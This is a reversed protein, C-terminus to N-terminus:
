PKDNKGKPKPEPSRPLEYKEGLAIAALDTATQRSSRDDNNSLVVVFLGVEPYSSVESVFGPIGGGHERATRGFRKRVVIGCAYGDKAPTFMVKTAEAGLLKKTALARDWTLLDGASSYMSGAAYPLGMHVYTAVTPETVRTYGTARGRLVMGDREVGTDALKLPDFVAERMFSEYSKGSASEIVMGLLIYGSNAYKFKEGPTFDLPKDKVLDVLEKPTRPTALGGPKLLLPIHEPIGATHTLLQHLTVGAWAEPCDPVHKGLTDSLTLEGQQELLLVAAATFQKTLSGIRFKTTLANPIEHDLNAMGYGRRFVPKGDVAVLVAGSFRTARTRATMYETAKAEFDAPVTLGKDPVDAPPSLLALLGVATALVPM